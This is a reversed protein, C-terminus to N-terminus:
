QNYLFNLHFKTLGPLPEKEIAGTQLQNSNLVDTLQNKFFCALSGVFCIPTNKAKKYQIINKNVFEQFSSKVLNECYKDSINEKLFPAFQALFQNPREKKYVRNLFDTYSINYQTKFKESLQSPLLGKLYDAVLKKGLVAGSGEDGLIYGLPPINKLIKHGDYFCSNSGTGLICAIGEKNGLTARAAALLDSQTEIDAKPFVLQLAASVIQGKESDIIGAGYFYINRISVKELEFFVGTLENYIDATDRFFPNIGKSHFQKSNGQEDSFYWSTKTSGSDAILIM